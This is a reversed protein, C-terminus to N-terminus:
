PGEVEIANIQLKAGGPLNPDATVRVRAAGPPLSVRGAADVWAGYGYGRLLGAPDRPLPNRSRAWQERRLFGWDAADGITVKTGGPEIVGLLVGRKLRSANAASVILCRADPPVDLTWSEGAKLAVDVLRRPTEFPLGRLALPTARAFVGSWAFFIMPLAVSGAALYRWEVRPMGMARFLLGAGAVALPFALTRLPMAPTFLTVLVAIAVAVPTSRYIAVIALALGVLVLERFVLVEALPIWRLLVIASVSIAAARAFSTRCPAALLSAFVAALLVGFGLLRLREDPLAIETAALLPVAVIAAPEAFAALLAVVAAILPLSADIATDHCVVLSCGWSAIAAAAVAISLSRSSERLPHDRIGTLM